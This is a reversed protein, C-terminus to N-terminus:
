RTRGSVVDNGTKEAKLGKIGRNGMGLCILMCVLPYGFIALHCSFINFNENWLLRRLFLIQHDSGGLLLHM